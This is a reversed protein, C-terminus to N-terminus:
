FNLNKEILEDFFDGNVPIPLNAPTGTNKLIRSPNPHPYPIRNRFGQIASPHEGAINHIQM